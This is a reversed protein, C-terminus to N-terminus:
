HHSHSAAAIASTRAGGLLVNVDRDFAPDSAVSSFSNVDEPIFAGALFGMAGGRITGDTPNDYVAVVRYRHNPRLRLGRHKWPFITRGVSSLRGDEARRARIRALVKGTEADELRLEVGHDHMHGGLARLWGGAPLTFEASTSTRGAPIDFSISEKTDEKASAYFPLVVQLKERKRAWRIRVKVTVGEIAVTDPNVLAYYLVMRQGQVLPLGISGPFSVPKTEHAAALVREALPYAIQRRDLNAMGAHHLLARPLPAGTSDFLDVRYGRLWGSAPWEIQHYAEEAHHGYPTAPAMVLPGVSIVIEGKDVRVQVAPQAWASGIPLITTLLTVGLFRRM